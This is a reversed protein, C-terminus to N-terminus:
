DPLPMAALVNEPAWGRIFELCRDGEIPRSLWWGQIEDCGHDRLFNLQAETEVGEAIVNLGLSHGM